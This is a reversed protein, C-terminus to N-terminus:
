QVIRLGSPPMPRRTGSSVVKVRLGTPPLPVPKSSETQETSVSAHIPATEGVVVGLPQRGPGAILALILVVIAQM